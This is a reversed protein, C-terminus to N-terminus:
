IDSDVIALGEPARPVQPLEFRIWMRDVASLTHTQAQLTALNHGCNPQSTVHKAPGRRPTRSGELAGPQNGSAPIGADVGSIECRAAPASAAPAGRLPISGAPRRLRWNA